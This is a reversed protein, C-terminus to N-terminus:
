TGLNELVASTDQTFQNIKGLLSISLCNKPLNRRDFDKNFFLLFADKGNKVSSKFDSMTFELGSVEASKGLLRLLQVGKNYGVRIGLKM